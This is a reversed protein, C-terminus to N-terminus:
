RLPSAPSRPSTSRHRGETIEGDSPIIDGAECVVVDGTSLDAAAMREESGDPRLRRADTKTRTKRLADAQAKGRGEAIAEAFNAFLVTLLLWVMVSWSFVSPHAIAELLTVVTGIAVVFMVPNRIQVRPDLKRVADVAARRVIHADFLGRRRVV